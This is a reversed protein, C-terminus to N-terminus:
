LRRRRQQRSAFIHHLRLSLSLACVTDGDVPRTHTNTRPISRTHLVCHEKVCGHTAHTTNYARPTYTHPPQACACVQVTIATAITCNQWQIRKWHVIINQLKSTTKKKMCKERTNAIANDTQHTTRTHTHTDKQSFCSNGDRVRIVVVVVACLELCLMGESICGFINHLCTM